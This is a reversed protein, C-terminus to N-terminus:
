SVAGSITNVASGDFTIPEASRDHASNSGTIAGNFVMPGSAARWVATAGIRRGLQQVDGDGAGDHTIDNLTLPDGNM